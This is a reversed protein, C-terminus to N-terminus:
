PTPAASATVQLKNRWEAAKEPEGWDQYLQVIWKGAQKLKLRSAAPTNAERRLMGGYGGLLLPEAEAYKKQGALSAGLLSQCNYRDWTNTMTKQHRSLADRLLPESQAYKGQTLYLYALGNM